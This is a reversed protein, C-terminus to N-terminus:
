DNNPLKSTNQQPRLRLIRLENLIHHRQVHTEQLQAVIERGQERYEKIKNAMEERLSGPDQASHTELFYQSLALEKSILESLARYLLASQKQVSHLQELLM